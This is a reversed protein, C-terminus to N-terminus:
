TRKYESYVSGVAGTLMGAGRAATRLGRARDVLRRNTLGIAFRLFGVIVRISGRLLLGARVIARAGATASTLHIRSWANGVRYARRLV